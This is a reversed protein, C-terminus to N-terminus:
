MNFSALKVSKNTTHNVKVTEKESYNEHPQSIPLGRDIIERKTGSKINQNRKTGNDIM